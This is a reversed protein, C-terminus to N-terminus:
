KFLNMKNTRIFTLEEKSETWVEIYGCNCCVYYYPNLYSPRIGQKIQIPLTKIKKINHSNSKLCTFNNKM